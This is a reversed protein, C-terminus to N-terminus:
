SYWAKEEPLSSSKLNHLRVIEPKNADIDAMKVKHAQLRDTLDGSDEGLESKAVKEKAELDALDAALKALSDKYTQVNKKETNMALEAIDAYSELDTLELAMEANLKEMAALTTEAQDKSAVDVDLDDQMQKRDAQLKYIGNSTLNKKQFYVENSFGQSVQGGDCSSFCECGATGTSWLAFFEYEWCYNMCQAQTLGTENQEAAGGCVWNSMNLVWNTAKLAQLEAKLDNSQQELYDSASQAQVALAIADDRVQTANALEAAFEQEKAVHDEIKEEAAEVLAQQDVCNDYESTMLAKLPDVASDDAYTKVVMEQYKAEWTASTAPGSVFPLLSTFAAELKVVLNALEQQLVALDTNDQALSANRAAEAATLNTLTDNLTEAEENFSAIDAAENQVKAEFEKIEAILTERKLINEDIDFDAQMIADEQEKISAKSLKIQEEMTDAAAKPQTLNATADILDQSKEEFNAEAIDFKAEAEELEAEAEEQESEKGTINSAIATVKELLKGAEEVAKELEEDEEELRRREKLWMCSAKCQLKECHEPCKMGYQGEFWNWVAKCFVEMDGDVAHMNKLRKSVKLKCQMEADTTACFKDLPKIPLFDKHTVTVLTQCKRVFDDQGDQDADLIKQAEEYEPTTTTTTTTTTTSAVAAGPSAVAVAVPSGAPAAVPAAAFVAAPAPAASGATGDAGAVFVRNVAKITAAGSKTTLLCALSWLLVVHRRRPFM